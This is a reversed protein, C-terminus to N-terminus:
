KPSTDLDTDQLRECVRGSSSEESWQGMHVHYQVDALKLVVKYGPVVLAGALEGPQGCGLSTDLWQRPSIAVVSAAEVSPLELKKALVLRAQGLVRYEALSLGAPETLTTEQPAFVVVTAAPDGCATVLGLSTVCCLFRAGKRSVSRFDSM